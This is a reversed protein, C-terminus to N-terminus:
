LLTEALRVLGFITLAPLGVMLVGALVLFGGQAFPAWDKAYVGRTEWPSNALRLEQAVYLAALALALGALGIGLSWMMLRVLNWGNPAFRGLAVAGCAITGLGAVVAAGSILYAFPKIWNDSVLNGLLLLIVFGAMGAVAAQLALRATGRRSALGV